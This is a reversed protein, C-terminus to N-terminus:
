HNRERRKNEYIGDTVMAQFLKMADGRLSVTVHQSGGGGKGRNYAPVIQEGPGIATLGEGSRPEFEAYGHRDIRRVIGGHQRAPAPTPSAARAAAERKAKERALRKKKQEETEDAPPDDDDDDDDSSGELSFLAKAGQGTPAAEGLAKAFEPGSIGNTVLAEAVEEPDLKSYMFYEFLALRMSDLMADGVTKKFEGKLFSSSFRVYATGDKKLLTFTKDGSEAGAKTYDATEQTAKSMNAQAEPDMGEMFEAIPDKEGGGPTMLEKVWQNVQEDSAGGGQGTKLAEGHAALPDFKFDSPFSGPPLAIPDVPAPKLGGSHLMPGSLEEGTKPDVFSMGSLGTGKQEPEKLGMKAGFPARAAVLEEHFGAMTKTDGMFSAAQIKSQLDEMTKIVAPDTVGAEKAAAQVDMGVVGGVEMAKHEEEKMKKFGLAENMREQEKRARDKKEEEPVAKALAALRTEVSAGATKKMVEELAKKM